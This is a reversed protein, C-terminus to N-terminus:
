LHDNGKYRVRIGTQLVLRHQGVLHLLSLPPLLFEPAFVEHCTPRHPDCPLHSGWLLNVENLELLTFLPEEHGCQAVGAAAAISRARLDKM